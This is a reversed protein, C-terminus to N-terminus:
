PKKRKFINLLLEVTSAAKTKGTKGLWYELLLLALVLLFERELPTIGCGGSM